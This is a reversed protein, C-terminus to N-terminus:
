KRFAIDPLLEQREAPMLEVAKVPFAPCTERCAGCGICRTGDVPGPTGDPRLSIAGVPCAEACDGCPEGDRLVICRDVDIRAIGIRTHQKRALSLPLLAGTPCIQSCRNCDYRCKGYEPDLFVPGDGGSAPRIIKEPCNAVCLQCATCRAAFREPDGAGPPLFRLKPTNRRFSALLAGAAAGVTLAACRRFFARRSPDEAPVSRRAAIFSICGRPCAAVCELCRLCREDDVAKTEPDIAAAPCARRCLGCRICEDGIELRFIGRAAVAGLLTGVPCIATCFIRRKWLTLLIIAALSVAGGVTFPVLIRGFNSYPDFLLMGCSWGAALAGFVCGAIAYRLFPLDPPASNKRRPLTDLIEQLIGFPCIVSCYFRGFLFTVVLIGAAAALAGASFAAALSALSPGLQLRFCRAAFGCSLGSFGAAALGLSIGAVAISIWRWIRKKRRSSM